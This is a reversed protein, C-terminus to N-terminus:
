SAKSASPVTLTHATIIASAISRGTMTWRLECSKVAVLLCSIINNHYNCLMIVSASLHLGGCDSMKALMMASTTASMMAPTTASVM